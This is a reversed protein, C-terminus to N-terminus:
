VDSGDGKARLNPNSTMDEEDAQLFGNSKALGELEKIRLFLVANKEKMDKIKKKYRKKEDHTSSPPNMVSGDRDGSRSSKSTLHSDGTAGSSNRSGSSKSPGYIAYWKAAFLCSTTIVAGLFCCVATIIFTVQRSSNAVSLQIVIVIAGFFATNYISFAIVKSEDYISIPVKRIRYALYSGWTLLAVAYAVNIGFLIKLSTPWYCVWYNRSVRDPDVLHIQAKLNTVTVMLVSLISQIVVIILIVLAVQINSIRMIKTTNNAYYLRHIRHTKALLSGFMTMFGLPLLWPRLNCISDNILNPMWSFISIYVLLSGALITYCFVPSAAVIVRHNRHIVLFIAWAITIAVGAAMLVTGVIEVATGWKVAFKREDWSPMPYIYTDAAALAPGIVRDDTNNKMLQLVLSLRTQHSEPDFASTGMFSSFQSTALADRIADSSNDAAQMIANTFIMGALTARAILYNAPRGFRERVLRDYGASDTFNRQVPFKAKPSYSSPLTVYDLLSPDSFPLILTSLLVAKPLWNKQKFYKLAFESGIGFDCIAVADPNSAIVEDLVQTWIDSRNGIRPDGYTPYDFPMVYHGVVDLDNLPAQSKVGTCLERQFNENAQIIAIKKAKAV